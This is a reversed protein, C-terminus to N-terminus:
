NAIKKYVSLTEKATKEWSFQKAREYGMKSLEKALNADSVIKSIANAFEEPKEPNAKLAAKGVVEPLSSTNSCVVPTGCAMAELAPLGFGEYLSPYVFVSAGSYIAPLDKDQIFGTFITEKELDQKKIDNFIRKYLWGEEGVIVLKFDFDSKKKLLAFAKLLCSLNKRPELTGVALIYNQPLGFKKKVKEKDQASAPKFISDVGPYIVFIKDEKVMLLDILDKRTNESTTILADANKISFSAVSKMYTKNKWTYFEPYRLFALDQVTLVSPKKSTPLVFDTSHIVHAD